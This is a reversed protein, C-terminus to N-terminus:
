GNGAVKEVMIVYVDTITYRHCMMYRHSFGISCLLSPFTLAFLPLARFGIPLAWALHCTLAILAFGWALSLRGFGYPKFM